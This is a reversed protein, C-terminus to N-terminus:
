IVVTSLLWVNVIGCTVLTLCLVLPISVTLFRRAAARRGATLVMTSVIFFAATLALTSVIVASQINQWFVTSPRFLEAGFHVLICTWGAVWCRLRDDPRVWSIVGFLLALLGLSVLDIITEQM